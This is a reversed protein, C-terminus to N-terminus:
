AAAQDPLASENFLPLRIWFLSGGGNPHEVGVSGGHLEVIRRVLHLGIGLGSKQNAGKQEGQGFLEFIRARDEPRVGPGQDRVEVVLTSPESRSVVEVTAGRPSFKIANSLLNVLAQRVKLDDVFLQALGPALSAHLRVGHKEGIPTVTAIAARVLDNLDRSKKDLVLKGTELRTLDLIDDILGLLMGAESSMRRLFERRQASSLRGESEELVEAYGIVSTLPTRLEHSATSLFSDKFRNLESLQLNSAELVQTRANLREVVEAREVVSGVHEAFMRLVDRHHERFPQPHNIRNVNLVGILRDAVRIPLSLASTINRNPKYHQGMPGPDEAGLLLPQQHEAVWGAIGEGIKRKGHRAYESELGYSARTELIGSDADYVMVSAQQAGLTSVVRRVIIELIVDLPLQLNLSTSVRFMESIESLRTGMDKLDSQERGMNSRLRNLQYQKVGILLCFAGVLGALSFGAVRSDSLPLRGELLQVAITLAGIVVFTVSWLWWGRLDVHDNKSKRFLSM